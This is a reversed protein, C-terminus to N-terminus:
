PTDNNEGDKKEPKEQERQTQRAQEREALLAEPGRLRGSAPLFRDDTVPVETRAFMVKDRGVTEDFGEERMKAELTEADFPDIGWQDAFARRREMRRMRKNMNFGLLLVVLTLFIIVFLGMPGAKGFEPGMPGKNSQDQAFFLVDHFALEAAYFQPTNMMTM